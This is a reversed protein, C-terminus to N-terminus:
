SRQRGGFALAELALAPPFAIGDQTVTIRDDPREGHSRMRWCAKTWIYWMIPTNHTFELDPHASNLSYCSKILITHCSECVHSGSITLNPMRRLQKSPLPHLLPLRPQYLSHAPQLRLPARALPHSRQQLLWVKQARPLQAVVLQLAEVPEDVGPHLVVVADESVLHAESFGDM